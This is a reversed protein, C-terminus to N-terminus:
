GGQGWSWKKIESMNTHGASSTFPFRAIRWSFHFSLTWSSVVSSRFCIPPLYSLAPPRPAAHVAPRPPPTCKPRPRYVQRWGRLLCDPPARQSPSGHGRLHNGEMRNLSRPSRVKSGHISLSNLSVTLTTTLCYVTLPLKLIPEPSLNKPLAMAECTFEMGRLGIENQVLDHLCLSM